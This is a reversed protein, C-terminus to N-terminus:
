NMEFAKKVSAKIAKSKKEKEERWGKWYKRMRESQAQKQKKKDAPTTKAWRAKALIRMEEKTKKKGSMYGLAQAHKNIAM